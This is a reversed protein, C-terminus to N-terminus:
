LRKVVRVAGARHDDLDFDESSPGDEKFGIRVLAQRKEEDEVCVSGVCVDADRDAAWGVAAEMLAPWASRCNHHTFGDVRCEIGGPIMRATALGVLLNQDTRASFWTGSDSSCLKGYRPYLGMCARQGAERRSLIGANADMVHWRHPTLILPIMPVRDAPTGKVIEFSGPERFYDVEYEEPSRGTTILAMVRSNPLRLWGCRRYVRAAAPNGTMIWFGGVGCTAMAIGIPVHLAILALMAVFALSGLTIPDM